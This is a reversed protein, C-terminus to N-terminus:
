FRVTTGDVGVVRLGMAAKGLTRGRWLTEFGCFWIIVVGLSTLLAVLASATGDLDDGASQFVILLLLGVVLALLVVDILFAISRSAVGARQFDLVVAEPTVIPQVAPAGAM